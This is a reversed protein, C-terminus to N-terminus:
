PVTLFELEGIKMPRMLSSPDRARRWCHSEGGGCSLIELPRCRSVEQASHVSSVVLDTWVPKIKVQGSYFIGKILLFGQAPGPQNPPIRWSIAPQASLSFTSPLISM